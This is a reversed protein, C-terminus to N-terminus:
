GFARAFIILCAGFLLLPVLASAIIGIGIFRRGKRFSLTVGLIALILDLGLGYISFMGFLSSLSNYGGFASSLWSFVTTIGVMVIWIGFFGLCFDGVKRGSNTYYSDRDQTGNSYSSNLDSTEPM